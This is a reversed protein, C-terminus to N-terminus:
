IYELSLSKKIKPMKYDLIVADFPQDANLTIDQLKKHYVRLCEEVNNTITVKDENKQHQRTYDLDFYTKSHKHPSFFNYLYNIYTNHNGSCQQTSTM